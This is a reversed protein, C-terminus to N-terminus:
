LEKEKGTYEDVIHLKITKVKNSFYDILFSRNAICTEDDGFYLDIEDDCSINDLINLFMSLKEKYVSPTVHHVTSRENIFDESFPESHFAGKSMDENFPIPSDLLNIMIKRLAEGAVINYKM